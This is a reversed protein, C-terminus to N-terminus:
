YTFHDTKEKEEINQALLMLGLFNYVKRYSTKWTSVFIIPFALANLMCLMMGMADAKISFSSGINGLWDTKFTLDNATNFVSVGLVAVLFTLIAVLLSWTRATDEKRVLFTALGGLLPVLILLLAIM